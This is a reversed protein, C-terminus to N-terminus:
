KSGDCDGFSVSDDTQELVEWNRQTLDLNLSSVRLGLAGQSKLKPSIVPLPLEDDVSEHYGMLLAETLIAGQSSFKLELDANSLSVSRVPFTNSGAKLASVETVAQATTNPVSDVSGPSLIPITSSDGTAQGGVTTESVVPNSVVPNSAEQNEPPPVIWNLYLISIAFCVLLAQFTRKDM